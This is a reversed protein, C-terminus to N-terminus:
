VRLAGSRGKKSWSRPVWDTFAGQEFALKMSPAVLLWAEYPMEGRVLNCRCCAPVVNERTHGISNDKRDLTMMLNHNGCYSCGRAIADAIHNKELDFIRGHKRDSRRSDVFIATARMDPNDRLSREYKQKALRRREVSAPGDKSYGRAVRVETECIRCTRRRYGGSRDPFDGIPRSVLCRKCKQM